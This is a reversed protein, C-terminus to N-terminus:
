LNNLHHQIPGIQKLQPFNLWFLEVMVIEVLYVNVTVSEVMVGFVKRRFEMRM